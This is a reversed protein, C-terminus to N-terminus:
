VQSKQCLLLAYVRLSQIKCKELVIIGGAGWPMYLVGTANGRGKKKKLECVWGVWSALVRPFARGAVLPDDDIFIIHMERRRGLVARM